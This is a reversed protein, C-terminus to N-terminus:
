GFRMMSRRQFLLLSGHIQHRGEHAFQIERGGSIAAEVQRRWPRDPEILIAQPADVNHNFALALDNEPRARRVV